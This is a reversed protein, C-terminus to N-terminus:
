ASIKLLWLGSSTVLGVTKRGASWAQAIIIPLEQARLDDAVVAHVLTDVQLGLEVGALRNHQDIHALGFLEVAAV